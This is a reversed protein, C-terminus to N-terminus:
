KGGNSELFEQKLDDVTQRTDPKHNDCEERSEQQMSHQVVLGCGPVGVDNEGM